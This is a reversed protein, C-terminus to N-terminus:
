ENSPYSITGKKSLSDVQAQLEQHQAQLQQNKATLCEMISTLQSIEERMGKLEKQTNEEMTSILSHLIKVSDKMASIEASFEEVEPARGPIPSQSTSEAMM